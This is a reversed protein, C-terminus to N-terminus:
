PSLGAAALRDRRVGGLHDRKAGGNVGLSAVRWDVRVVSDESLHFRSRVIAAQESTNASAVAIALTIEFSQGSYDALRNASANIAVEEFLQIYEAQEEDSAHRWYRGLVYRAIGKVALGENLLDRIEDRVQHDPLDAMATAIARDALGQVFQKSADVYEQARLSTATISLVLVLVSLRIFAM